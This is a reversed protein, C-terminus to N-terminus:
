LLARLVLLFTEVSATNRGAVTWQYGVKLELPFGLVPTLLDLTPFVTARYGSNGQDVGDLATSPLFRYRAQLYLGVRLVRPAVWREFRPEVEALLDYRHDVEVGALSPDLHSALSTEGYRARSLYPIYQVYLNVFLEGGPPKVLVYDLHLSVVPAVLHKDVAQALYTSGEAYRRAERDWDITTLPFKLALAIALRLTDSQYVGTARKGAGGSGFLAIKVGALADFSDDLHARDRHAPDSPPFDLSSSLNPGPTWQIGTTLWWNIGYELAWGLNFSRVRGSGTPIERRKGAADYSGDVTSWAPVAYVRFM